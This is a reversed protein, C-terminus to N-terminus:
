SKAEDGTAVENNKNIWESFGGPYIKVDQYGAEKLAVLNMCASNGSGCSVIIEKDSRLSAFHGKLEQKSKWLGNEDFVEKSHFNKAGPIHGAKKYKPEVQGIYRDYSRSDILNSREGHIKQELEKIGVVFDLQPNVEYQVAKRKTVKATVDNHLAWDQFGGQLIYVQEHGLYQFVTWAKSAARNNGQDYLVIETERRIGMEGLKSALEIPEPFFSDEGTLDNKMDLFVAGPLHSHKYAEEGTEFQANKTRVDICVIENNPAKMKEKLKQVDIIISM